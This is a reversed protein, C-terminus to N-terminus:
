PNRDEKGFKIKQHEDNRLLESCDRSFSNIWHSIAEFRYDFFYTRSTFKLRKM